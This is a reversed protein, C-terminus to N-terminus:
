AQNDAGAAAACTGVVLQRSCIALLPAPWESGGRRKRIQPVQWVYVCHLM